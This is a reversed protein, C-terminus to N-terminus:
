NPLKSLFKNISEKNLGFSGITNCNEEWGHFDSGGTFALNNEICFEM